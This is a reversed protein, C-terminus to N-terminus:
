PNNPSGNQQECESVEGWLCRLKRPVPTDLFKKVAEDSNELDTTADEDAQEKADLESITKRLDGAIEEFLENSKRLLAITKQNQKNAEQEHAVQLEAMQRGQREIYAYGGVLVVALSLGGIVYLSGPIM